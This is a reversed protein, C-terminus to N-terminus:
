QKHNMLPISLYLFLSFSFLLISNNKYLRFHVKVRIIKMIAKRCDRERKGRLLIAIDIFIMAFLVYSLYIIYLFFVKAWIHNRDPKSTTTLGQHYNM